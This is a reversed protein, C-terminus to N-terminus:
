RIARFYPTRTSFFLDRRLMQRPGVTRANVTADCFTKVVSARGRLKPSSPM